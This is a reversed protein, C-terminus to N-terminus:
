KNVKRNRDKLGEADGRSFEGELGLPDAWGIPNPAYAYPNNEVEHSSLDPSLFRGTTQDFFRFRNYHLGTEPDFTQGQLRFPCDARPDALARTRRDGFARYDFRAVTSGARDYVERVTCRQDLEYFFPVGDVAHGLPLFTGPVYLY